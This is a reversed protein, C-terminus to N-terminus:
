QPKLARQMPLSCVLLTSSVQLAPTALILGFRSLFIMKQLPLVTSELCELSTDLPIGGGPATQWFRMATQTRRHEHQVVTKTLRANPLKHVLNPGYAAPNGPYTRGPEVVGEDTIHPEKGGDAIRTHMMEHLFYQGTTRLYRMDSAKETKGGSLESEIETIKQDINDLSFFPPCFTIYHYYGFWGNYTWAYGGVTGQGRENCLNKTDKCSMTIYAKESTKGSKFESIRQLNGSIRDKQSLYDPGMYFHASASGRSGEGNNPFISSYSALTTAEWLATELANKQNDSCGSDSEYYLYGGSGGM